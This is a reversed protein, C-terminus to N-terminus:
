VSENVASHTCLHSLCVCRVYMCVCMCECVCVSVCVYMCVFVYTCLTVQTSVHSIYLNLEVCCCFLLLLVTECWYECCTM